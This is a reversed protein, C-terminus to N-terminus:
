RGMPRPAWKRTLGKPDNILGEAWLAWVKEGFDGGLMPAGGPPRCKFNQNTQTWLLVSKGVEWISVRVEEKKEGSVRRM